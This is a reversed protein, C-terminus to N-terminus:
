GVMTNSWLTEWKVFLPVVHRGFFWGARRRVLKEIELFTRREHFIIPVQTTFIGFVLCPFNDEAISEELLVEKLKKSGGENM